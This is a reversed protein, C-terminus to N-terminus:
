SFAIRDTIDAIDHLSFREKLMVEVLNKVAKFLEESDFRNVLIIEGWGPDRIITAGLKELEPSSLFAVIEDLLKDFKEIKEADVMFEDNSDDIETAIVEALEHLVWLTKDMTTEEFAKRIKEPDVM